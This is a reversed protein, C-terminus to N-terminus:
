ETVRVYGALLEPAEDDDTYRVRLEHLGVDVNSFDITNVTRCQRTKAAVGFWEADFLEASGAGLRIKVPQDDLVNLRDTVEAVLREVTGRSYEVIPKPATDSM